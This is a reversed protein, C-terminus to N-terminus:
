GKRIKQYEERIAVQLLSVAIRETDADKIYGRGNYYARIEELQREQEDDLPVNIVLEKKM